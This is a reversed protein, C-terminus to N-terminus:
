RSTEAVAALLREAGEVMEHLIEGAPQVAHVDGVSQGAYLAMAEVAGSMPKIPPPVGQFRAISFHQDGLTMEGLVDGEFAETAEIASRLVGHTSPCLPCNVSYLGTRVSDEATADILAKVYTPHAGSQEAAVFRTGVRAGAAGAALVAALTRANGIGGAALVPIDVAELVQGLLPLLGLRGRIHGGAEIGQAIIFDCGADVAARAEQLSGVQWSALAGGAHALEVLSPDPEGWFYDMVRARRALLELSERSPAGPVVINVGFPKATREAIADLMTSIVEIPAPIATIQGLGGAESIAAALEPTCVPGMGALQIPMSCGVLETFRTTLM